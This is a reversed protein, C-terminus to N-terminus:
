ISRGKWQLRGRKHLIRSAIIGGILMTASIPHLWPSTLSSRSKVAALYRSILLAGLLILAKHPSIFLEIVPFIGTFFLWIATFLSLPLSGLAYWLSKTYGAFIEASNSYMRCSIMSAGNIVTGHFRHRRLERAIDMDDLVSSAISRHGDIAFYAISEIALFQGNAVVTSPRLSYNFPRIPLTSMWSWALLPQSIKEAWSLALEQPYPSLYSYNNTMM